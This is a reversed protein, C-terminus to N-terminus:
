YGSIGWALKVLTPCREKGSSRIFYTSGVLNEIIPTDSKWVRWPDLNDVVEVLTGKSKHNNSNRSIEASFLHEYISHESSYPLWLPDHWIDLYRTLIGYYRAYRRIAETCIQVYYSFTWGGMICCVTIFKSIDKCFDIISQTCKWVSQTTYLDQEM